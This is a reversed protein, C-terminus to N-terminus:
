MCKHCRVCSWMMKLRFCFMYKNCGIGTFVYSYDNCMQTTKSRRLIKKAKKEHGVIFYDIETNVKHNCQPHIKLDKNIRSKDQKTQKNVQRRIKDMTQCNM